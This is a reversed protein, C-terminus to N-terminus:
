AIQTNETNWSGAVKSYKLETPLEWAADSKRLSDRYTFNSGSTPPIELVVSLDIGKGGETSVFLYLVPIM